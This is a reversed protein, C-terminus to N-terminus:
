PCRLTSDKWWGPGGQDASPSVQGRSRGRRGGNGGPDARAQAPHRRSRGGIGPRGAGREFAVLVVTTLLLLPSRRRATPPRVAPQPARRTTIKTPM